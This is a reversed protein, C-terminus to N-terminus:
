VPLVFTNNGKKTIKSNKKERFRIANKAFGIAGDLTNFEKQVLRKKHINFLTYKDGKKNVRFPM